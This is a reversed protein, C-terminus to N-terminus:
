VDLVLGHFHYGGALSKKGYSHSMYLEIAHRSNTKVALVTTPTGL